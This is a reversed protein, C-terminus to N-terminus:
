LRSGGTVSKKYVILGDHLKVLLAYLTQTEGETLVSWPHYFYEDTLKEVQGRLESGKRTPRFSNPTAATEIWGIEVAAQIAIAYDAAEYGRVSMIEAMQAATVASGSAISNLVNWVIGAQGFHPHAASLHADDRYAFLDMLAERIQVILPSPVDTVHFRKIIAWKAPPEPAELNATVLRKLLGALHELEGDSIKDFDSLHADGAGIIMRVGDRTKSYVKYRKDPTPFIWDQVEFRAFMKEFQEPNSFPDRKQFDDVSFYDLGLESYYYLEIPIDNKIAADEIHPEIIEWFELVISHMLPWFDVLAEVNM